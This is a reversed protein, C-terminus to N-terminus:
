LAILHRQSLDLGEVKVGEKRPLLVPERKDIRVSVGHIGQAFKQWLNDLPVICITGQPSQASLSSCSLLALLLSAVFIRVINQKLM